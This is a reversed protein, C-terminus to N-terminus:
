KANEDESIKKAVRKIIEVVGGIPNKLTEFAVEAIDPAMRKINRFRRALFTEDPENKELEQQLEQLDTRIDNKDQPKLDKKTNLKKYLDDFLPSIKVSTNTVINNNGIVINSGSVNGGIVMSNDGATIQSKSDKKAM